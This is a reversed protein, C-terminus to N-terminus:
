SRNRCSANILMTEHNGRLCIFRGAERHQSQILFDIVKRSDPGRDVYDGIFVFRADEAESLLDCAAILSKLKGFCGHVDGIAFTVSNVM